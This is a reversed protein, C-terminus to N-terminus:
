KLYKELRDFSEIWGQESLDGDEGAPINTHKLTFRTKGDMDEFTLAIKSDAPWEADMGYTSAPVINGDKDAFSDTSVLREQDVIELYTGTGWIDDGSSSRMCYLYKGGVRLDITFYPTTYTEAGWWMKLDKPNTWARWVKERPADFIRSINIERTTESM